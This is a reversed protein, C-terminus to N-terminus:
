AVGIFLRGFPLTPNSVIVINQFSLINKTKNIWNRNWNNQSVTIMIRIRTRIIIIKTIIIIVIIKITVTM